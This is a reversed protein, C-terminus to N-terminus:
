SATAATREEILRILSRTEFPKGIYSDFGDQLLAQGQGDTMGLSMGILCIGQLEERSRVFRSIARPSVDRLTTDLILVNPQMEYTLAGAEFASSATTVEYDGQEILANRIAQAIASDADCVLVRKQGSELGNLPMDHARMFVILQEVPIRRDKSGPIRYGRLQGSDFWKSV